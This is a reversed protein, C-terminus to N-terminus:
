PVPRAGTVGLQGREGAWECPEIVHQSELRLAMKWHETHCGRPAGLHRGHEAPVQKDM